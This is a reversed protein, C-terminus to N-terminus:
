AEPLLAANRRLYEEAFHYGDLLTDDRRGLLAVDDGLGRRHVDAKVRNWEPGDGALLLRSPMEARVHGFAEVLVDLGKVPDMRGVWLLAHEGPGIGLEARPVPEAARIRAVDVGGEDVAEQFTPLLHQIIKEAIREFQRVVEKQDLFDKTVQTVINLLGGAMTGAVSGFASRVLLTALPTVLEKALREILKRSM